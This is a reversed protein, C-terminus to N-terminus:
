NTNIAYQEISYLESLVLGRINRYFKIKNAFDQLLLGGFTAIFFFFFFVCM